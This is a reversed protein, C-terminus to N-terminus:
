FWGDYFNQLREEGVDTKTFPFQYSACYDIIIRYAQSIKKFMEESKKKNKDCKDPHYKLCLTRYADKVEKLTAREPLKLLKRAEEIKDFDTTM